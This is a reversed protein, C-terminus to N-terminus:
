PLTPNVQYLGHLKYRSDLFLGFLIRNKPFYVTSHECTASEPVKIATALVQAWFM